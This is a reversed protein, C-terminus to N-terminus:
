VSIILLWPEWLLIYVSVSNRMHEVGGNMNNYDHCSYKSLDLSTDYSVRYPWNFSVVM